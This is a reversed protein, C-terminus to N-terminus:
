LEGHAGAGVAVDVCGNVVLTATLVVVSRCAHLLTFIVTYAGRWVLHAHVPLGTDMEGERKPHIARRTECAVSDPYYRFVQSSDMHELNDIAQDAAVEFM